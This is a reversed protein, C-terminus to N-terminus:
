HQTVPGFLAQRHQDIALLLAEAILEHGKRNPHKDWKELQLTEAPEGAFADKLNMIFFGAERAMDETEQLDELWSSDGIGPLFVWVPTIGSEKSQTVLYRYMWVTIEGQYPNLMRVVTAKDMSGDVGSQRVISKLGPYPIEIKKMVVDSLYDVARSQERGTAVYFIADPDFERAKDLVVCQQLPYYGPVAFNLIEIRAYGGTDGRENLRAETLAEFTQEQEVGWGMVSSAGLMAIRYTGPAPKLTYAKDRMGWSNTQIRGYPTASAFSPVLEEQLFDDTFRVLGSGKIDLWHFAPKNMYMEWLQSNFRDVRTLEEYYGRELAAEDARSLQGSKVSVVLNAAETGFTKYVQPLSIASTVVLMALTSTKFPSRQLSAREADSEEGRSARGFYIASVFIVICVMIFYRPIAEHFTLTGNWFFSWMSIWSSFSNSTWLSWLICIAYFVAVTKIGLLISDRVSHRKRASISRARGKKLEMLSNIIVAIALAGWFVGDQWTLPFTGRLWFWLYSHLMWTSFFVVLTAVILSQKQGMGRLRFMLPYFIVKMMFDKWYINIRRWFDTFSSALCYRHHTALLNFGFLHLLGTILHFYGSIRLYLLFNSVLFQVLTDPNYVESPTITVYQYIVRYLILHLIGRLMWDVGIQYIQHREVNYYTRRFETYDVVPFLPFCVNPTMFFYSLRTALSPRVKDHRTDYLFVVIRFIFMSGLIPWIANSWPGELVDVRFLMLLAGLLVLLAVRTWFALPLQCTFILLLGFAVLWLSNSVGFVIGISLISLAAFFPLRLRLPLFYHVAFGLFAILAVRLFAGSQIQFQRIILSLLGLQGMILAFKGLSINDAAEVGNPTSGLVSDGDRPVSQQTGGLRRLLSLVSM